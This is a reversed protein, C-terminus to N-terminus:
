APIRSSSDKSTMNDGTQGTAPTRVLQASSGKRQIRGYVRRYAERALQEARSAWVAGGAVPYSGNALRFKYDHQGYGFDILTIARSAAEEAIPYWMMMGPSFRSLESDYSPLWSSLGRPGLLGLHVAVTREGALLVSVIGSCDESSAVAASEVIRIASPDSAFMRRTSSYKSSKWELLQRLHEPQPSNWLLSVPGVHRQLSRRKEAIRKTGSKNRGSIWPQYGESLDILACQITTDSYHHPMLPRHQAPAYYFRWGRLGAKRIVARADIETVAGVIGQLDNMPYGIPKALKASTLEYALFAVIRGGDEVVAIRANPRARGVIQAFTLSLYPSLMLPSSHQFAAWLEAESPGLDSPRVITVRM